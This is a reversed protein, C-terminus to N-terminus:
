RDSRTGNGLRPRLNDSSTDAAVVLTVAGADAVRIATTLRIGGAGIM